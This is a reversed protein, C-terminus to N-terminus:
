GEINKYGVWDNNRKDFEEAELRETCWGEWEKQEEKRLLEQEERWRIRAEIDIGLHVLSVGRIFGAINM